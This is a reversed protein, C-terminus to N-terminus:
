FKPGGGEREEKEWTLRTVLCHVEHGVGCFTAHLHPSSFVFYSPIPGRLAVCPGCLAMQAPLDLLRFWSIQMGGWALTM